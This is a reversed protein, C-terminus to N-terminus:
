ERRAVLATVASPSVPAGREDIVFCRDADGDFALGADAGERVVAAQLDRLNAPELPNAEHNPFTGDLEFYLPVVNVPLPPLGAAASSSATTRPRTTARRSCRARRTSPAAPTTCGTPASWARWCSTSGAPPPVTPSRTRCSRPAPACTTASSSGPGRAPSRRPS